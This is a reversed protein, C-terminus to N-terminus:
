FHIEFSDAIEQFTQEDPPDQTFYAILLICYGEHVLSIGRIRTLGFGHNDRVLERAPQGGLTTETAQPDTSDVEGSKDFNLAGGCGSLGRAETISAEVKTEYQPLGEPPVTALSPDFSYFAGGFAGVDRYWDTPYRLSYRGDADTYTLWDAPASPRPADSNACAAAFVLLCASVALVSLAARRLLVSM